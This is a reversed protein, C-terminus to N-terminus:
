EGAAAMPASAGAYVQKFVGLVTDIDPASVHRNIVIRMVPGSSGRTWLGHRNLDEAWAESSRGSKSFDVMLINSDVREPQTLSADIAHLGKALKKANAHDEAMRDVMKELSIIGAAAVVGAQRMTGGILRRYAKADAIFKKTGCLVSGIPSSLGKSICFGVSDTHQAIESVPVGLAVAANFLRAGDTHVPIGYKKGLTHVAKMHELPLPRGWHANHTTEMCIVGTPLEGIALKPQIMSELVDLHMAGRDSPVPKYFLSALVSVFGMESRLIHAKEEVLVTARQPCHVLLAIHNSMTGSPLFIGAEMGLKEAALAELKGVTPDGERGDDGIEAHRMADLMEETPRTVTDSRLDIRNKM